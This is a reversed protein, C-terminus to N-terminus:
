CNNAGLHLLPEPAKVSMVRPLARMDLRLGAGHVAIIISKQWTHLVVGHQNHSSTSQFGVVAWGRKMCSRLARLCRSKLIGNVPVTKVGCM